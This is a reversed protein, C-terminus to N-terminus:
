MGPTSAEGQAVPIGKLKEGPSCHESLEFFLQLKLLWTGLVHSRHNFYSHHGSVRLLSCLKKFQRPVSEPCSKMGGLCIM